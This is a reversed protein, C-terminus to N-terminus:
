ALPLGSRARTAEDHFEVVPGPRAGGDNLTELYRCVAYGACRNRYSELWEAREPGDGAADPWDFRLGRQRVRYPKPTLRARFCGQVTCLQAYLEDARFDRMLRRLQPSGPPFEGQLVLLRYGARTRYIRIPYNRYRPDAATKRISDLVREAPDPRSPPAPLPRRRFLRAFFGAPQKPRGSQEEVPAIDVDVFVLNESNLVEAGYRNRTVINQPSLERLIEERIPREEYNWAPGGEAIRQELERLSQAARSRAEEESVDSGAFMRTRQPEGCGPLRIEGRM